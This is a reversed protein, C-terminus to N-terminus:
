NNESSNAFIQNLKSQYDPIKDKMIKICPGLLREFAGIELMACRCGAGMAYVTAARPKNTLLALEGFYDGEKCVKIEKIVKEQERVIRVKGSEIFFMCQAKEGQKIIADGDEYSRSILADALNLREYKELYRFIPVMELLKEYRKRKEYASKLVIQQFATRCIAWLKGKSKSVITAARPVQYMLALEGFYGLGRYEGIKVGDILIDYDGDEIVYFNDGYDGQKIVCEGCEAEKRFMAKIVLEIQDKELVRFLFVERMKERLYEQEESTKPYETVKQLEAEPDYSEAAVSFRRGNLYGGIENM